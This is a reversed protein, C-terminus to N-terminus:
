RLGVSGLARGLGGRGRARLLRRQAVAVYRVRGRRVGYAFPGRKSAAFVARGLRRPKGFVRRARRVRTGRGVRGPGKGRATTGILRVRGGSMAASARGGGRVCWSLSRRSSSRPRGAARVAAARRMGVKVRGFGRRHLRWRRPLCRSRAPTEGSGGSPNGSGGATPGRPTAPLNGRRDVVLPRGVNGEEDRARLGVFRFSTAVDFAQTTGAAAPAPAGAIPRASSFNAGTIPRDSGVLEYAKAMGCLLDDGPARFSLRRGRLTAGFPRGPAVADRRADGSNANDHHFKPWSGPSCAEAPTDYAFVSGSRTVAVVVKRASGEVDLTGFSGALPTTVMWDSTTKPWKGGAPATGAASFAALDNHASGAIVEEGDGPAGDIDAVAPGSLFQLDNVRAPFNPRMTGGPSEALWAGVMDQGEMQYDNLAVDLARKLGTAPATFTVEPGPGLRGFAPQGFAPIVPRDSTSGSPAADSQLHVDAAGAKGYCSSGDANFVYAPGVASMAGVKTGEGGSPCSFEALVASGTIGEGVVPLTETGLIAVKVPWGDVFPSPGNM